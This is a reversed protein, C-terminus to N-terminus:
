IPACRARRRRSSRNFRHVRNSSANPRLSCVISERPTSLPLSHFRDDDVFEAGGVHEFVLAHRVGLRARALDANPNMGGGDIAHEVHAQARALFTGAPRLEREDGADIAGAHDVRDSSTDRAPLLAHPHRRGADHREVDAALVVAVVASRFAHHSDLPRAAEGFHDRHRGAGHDRQGVPEVEVLGRHHHAVHGGGPVQQEVDGLELGALGHQDHTRAAIEAADADLDGLVHDAGLHDRGGAGVVAYCVPSASPASQPM